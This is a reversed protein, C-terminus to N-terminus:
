GRRILVATLEFSFEVPETCDFDCSYGHKWNAIDTHPANMDRWDKRLYAFWMSSIPPWQHTPDGYAFATNWNPVTIRAEAGPKMVRYLENVVKIRDLATLHEFFHASYVAEVEGEKFPLPKRTVDMIHDVGPFAIKDIGIYDPYKKKPGCGLDLKV